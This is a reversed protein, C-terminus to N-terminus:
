WTGYIRSELRDNLWYLSSWPVDVFPMTSYFTRQIRCRERFRFFTLLKMKRRFADTWETFKIHFQMSQDHMYWVNIIPSNMKSIAAVTQCWRSLLSIIIINDRHHARERTWEMSVLSLVASESHYLYAGLWIWNIQWKKMNWTKTNPKYKSKWKQINSKRKSKSQGNM